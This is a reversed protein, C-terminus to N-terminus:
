RDMVSDVNLLQPPSHHPPNLTKALAAQLHEEHGAADHKHGAATPTEPSEQVNYAFKNAATFTMVLSPISKKKRFIGGSDKVDMSGVSVKRLSPSSPCIKAPDEGPLGLLGSSSGYGSGSVGDDHEQDRAEGLRQHQLQTIQELMRPDLSMLLKRAEEDSLQVGSGSM